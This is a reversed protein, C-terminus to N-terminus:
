VGSCPFPNDPPYRQGDKSCKHCPRLSTSRSVTSKQLAKRCSIFPRFVRSLRGMRYEAHCLLKKRRQVRQCGPYRDLLAISISSRISLTCFQSIKRQKSAITKKSSITELSETTKTTRQKADSTLKLHSYSSVIKSVIIM